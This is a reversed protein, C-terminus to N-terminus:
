ADPHDLAGARETLHMIVDRMQYPVPADVTLAGAPTETGAHYKQKALMVADFLASTEQEQTSSRPDILMGRLEESNFLWYPLTLNGTHLIEAQDQFTTAYENHPDLLIIRGHPFTKLITRLLLALACSKGTGTTGLLAFHMGLLKDVLMYAPISADQHIAGVRICPENPRAYIQALDENGALYLAAWLGPYISVGRQFRLKNQEDAVAEGILDIKAIREDQPRSDGAVMERLSLATIMGFAFGRRTPLKVITGIQLLELPNQQGEALAEPQQLAAMLKSGEMAIVHGLSASPVPKRLPAATAPPTTM